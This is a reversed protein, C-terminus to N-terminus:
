SKRKISKIQAMDYARVNFLTPPIDEGAALREKGWAKLTPAPVSMGIHPSYDKETLTAACEQAKDLEAAGFSVSVEARVIAGYGKEALWAFADARSGEPISIDVGQAVTVKVGLDALTADSMGLEKMLEPLDTRQVRSLSNKLESLEEEKKAVALLLDLTHQVLANLREGPATM